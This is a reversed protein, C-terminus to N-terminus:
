FLIVSIYFVDVDLSDVMLKLGYSVKWLVKKWFDDQQDIRGILEIIAAMMKPMM